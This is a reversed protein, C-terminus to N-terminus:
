NKRSAGGTDVNLSTGLTDDAGLNEVTNKWQELSSRRVVRRRGMRVAPLPPAGKVVGNILNYVHPKSCRLDLAVEAATLVPDPRDTLALSQPNLTVQKDQAM